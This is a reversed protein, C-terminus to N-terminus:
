TSPVVVTQETTVLSAASGANWSNISKINFATGLTPARGTTIKLIGGEIVAGGDRGAATVNPISVDTTDLQPITNTTFTATKLVTETNSNLAYAGEDGFLEWASGTWIYEQHDGALVIDGSQVVYQSGSIIIRSNTGGDSIASSTRGRYHMIGDLKDSIYGVVAATTPVDTSSQNANNGTEIIETVVDKQAADGLGNLASSVGRGSIPNGSTADYTDQVSITTVNGDNAIWTATAEDYTFSIVAGAAWDTSGGPNNIIHAETTGVQLTLSSNMQVTNGHTFKIHVTIGNVLHDFPTLIAVKAATAANTNCIGYLSSGVPLVAGYDIELETFYSSM